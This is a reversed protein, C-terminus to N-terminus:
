LGLPVLADFEHHDATIVEADLRRALAICFCDALSVRRRVAKIRGADRWVEEDLDECVVIGDSILREVVRVADSDGLERVCDYFVECLNLVHVAAISGGLDLLSRVIEGGPERRLLALIASADFVRILQERGELASEGM